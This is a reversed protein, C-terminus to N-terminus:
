FFLSFVCSAFPRLFMHFLVILTNKFSLMYIYIYIHYHMEVIYRFLDTLAETLSGNFANFVDALARSQDRSTKPRIPVSQAHLVVCFRGLLM